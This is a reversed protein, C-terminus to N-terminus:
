KRSSVSMGKIELLGTLNIVEDYTPFLTNPQTTHLNRTAATLFLCTINWLPWLGCIYYMYLHAFICSFGKVLPSICYVFIYM